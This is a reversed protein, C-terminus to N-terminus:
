CRRVYIGHGAWAVIVATMALLFGRLGNAPLAYLWPLLRMVARDAGGMPAGMEMGLPMALLMAAAGAALTVWAKLDAGSAADESHEAHGSTRPLVADYGAGRIAAVLQEPAALAPDFVISARHAMLDVRAQEVGPTDRLAEEVHHQCSACTMGLVPLTLSETASHSAMPADSGSFNRPVINSWSSASDVTRSELMAGHLYSAKAIAAIALGLPPPNEDSSLRAAGIRVENVVIGPTAALAQSVRQMCSGCHM